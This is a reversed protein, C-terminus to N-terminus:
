APFTSSGDRAWVGSMNLNVIAGTSVNSALDDAWATFCPANTLLSTGTSGGARMGHAYTIVTDRNTIAAATYSLLTATDATEDGTSSMSNGLLDMANAGFGFRTHVHGPNTQRLTKLDAAIFADRPKGTAFEGSFDAFSMNSTGTPVGTSLRITTTGVEAITTGRPVLFGAARMGESLGAVSSVTVVDSGDSVVGTLNVYTPTTDLQGNPACAHYMGPGDVGQDRLRQWQVPINAVVAALTTWASGPQGIYDDDDTLNIGISWGNNNLTRVDDWDMCPDGGITGGILKTPVNFHGVLGRAQMIPFIDTIISKRGDDFTPVATPVGGIKGVVADVRPRACYPATQQNPFLRVNLAGSGLAALAPVSSVPYALWYVGKKRRSVTKQTIGSQFNYTTGQGFRADLSSCTQYMPDDDLIAAFGVTDLDSPVGTWLGTQQLYSSGSTTAGGNDAEISAVGQVRNATDLSWNALGAGRTLGSLSLSDLSSLLVPASLVPGAAVAVIIGSSKIALTKGLDANSAIYTSSTAGSIDTGDAWCWQPSAVNAATYLQGVSGDAARSIAPAGGGGGMTCPSGLVLGLMLNM